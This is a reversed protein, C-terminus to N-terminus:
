PAVQRPWMSLPVCRVARKGGQYSRKGPVFRVKMGPELYQRHLEKVRYRTGDPGILHDIGEPAVTGDLWRGNLRGTDLAKEEM